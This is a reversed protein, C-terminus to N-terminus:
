TRGVLGCLYNKALRSGAGQSRTRNLYGPSSGHVFRDELRGQMIRLRLTHRHLREDGVDLIKRLVDEVGDALRQQNEVATQANMRRVAREILGKVDRSFLRLVLEDVFKAVSLPVDGIQTRQKFVDDGGARDKVIELELVVKGDDSAPDHQEVRSFQALAAM